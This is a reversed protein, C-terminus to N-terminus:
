DHKIPEIRPKALSKITSCLRWPGQIHYVALNRWVVTSYLTKIMSVSLTGSDTCGFGFDDMRWAGWDGVLPLRSLSGTIHLGMVSVIDLRYFIVVFGGLVVKAAVRSGETIQIPRILGIREPFERASFGNRKRQLFTAFARRVLIDEYRSPNRGLPKGSFGDPSEEFIGQGYRGPFLRARTAPRQADIRRASVQMRRFSVADQRGQSPQIFGGADVVIGWLSVGQLNPGFEGLLGPIQQGRIGKEHTKGGDSPALGPFVTFAGKTIALMIASVGIQGQIDGGAHQTPAYAQQIADAVPLDGGREAEISGMFEPDTFLFYRFQDNGHLQLGLPFRGSVRDGIAEKVVNGVPVPEPLRIREAIRLVIPGQDPCGCPGRPLRRAHFFWRGTGKPFRNWVLPRRVIRVFFCRHFIMGEMVLLSEGRALHDFFSPAGYGHIGSGGERSRGKVPYQRPDRGRTFIERPDGRNVEGKEHM